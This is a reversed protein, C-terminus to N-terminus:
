ALDEGGTSNVAGDYDPGNYLRLLVNIEAECVVATDSCQAEEGLVDNEGGSMVRTDLSPPHLNSSMPQKLPRWIGRTSDRITSGLAGDGCLSHRTVCWVLRCALNTM